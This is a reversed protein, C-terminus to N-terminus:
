LLVTRVAGAANAEGESVAPAAPAILARSTWKWCIKKKYCQCVCLGFCCLVLLGVSVVLPLVWTLWSQSGFGNTVGDYM